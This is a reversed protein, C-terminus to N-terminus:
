MSQGEDVYPSILFVMFLMSTKNLTEINNLETTIASESSQPRKRPAMTGGARTIAGGAITNGCTYM